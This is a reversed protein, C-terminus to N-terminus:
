IVFLKTYKFRRYQLRCYVDQEAMGDQRNRLVTNQTGRYKKGTGSNQGNRKATGQLPKTHEALVDLGNRWSTQTCWKPKTCCTQGNREQYVTGSSIYQEALSNRQVTIGNTIPREALLFYDHFTENTKYTDPVTKNADFHKLM